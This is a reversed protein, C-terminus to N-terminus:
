GTYCGEGEFVEGIKLDSKATAVVDAPFDNQAGKPLCSGCELGIRARYLSLDKLSGRLIRKFRNDCWLGFLVSARLRKNGSLNFFVWSRRIDTILGVLPKWIQM